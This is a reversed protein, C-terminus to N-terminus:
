FDYELQLMVFTDIYGKNTVVPTVIQNFSIKESIYKEAVEQEFLTCGFNNAPANYITDEKTVISKVFDLM